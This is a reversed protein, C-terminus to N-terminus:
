PISAYAYVEQSQLWGVEMNSNLGSLSQSTIIHQRTMGIV